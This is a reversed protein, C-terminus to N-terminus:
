DNYEKLVQVASLPVIYVKKLEICKSQSIGQPGGRSPAPLNANTHYVEGVNVFHDIDGQQPSARSLSPLNNAPQCINASRLHQQTQRLSIGTNPANLPKAMKSADLGFYKAKDCKSKSFSEVDRLILRQQRWHRVRTLKCGNMHIPHLKLAIRAIFLLDFVIKNIPVDIWIYPPANTNWETQYALSALFSKEEQTCFMWFLFIDYSELMSSYAITAEYLRSRRREYVEFVRENRREVKGRAEQRKEERQGGLHRIAEEISIRRGHTVTTLNAQKDADCPLGTINALTLHHVIKFYSTMMKVTVVHLPEFIYIYYLCLEIKLSPSKHYNM